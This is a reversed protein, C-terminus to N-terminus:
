ELAHGINAMLRQERAVAEVKAAREDIVVSPSRRLWINKLRCAGGENTEFVIGQLNVKDGGRPDTIRSLIRSDARLTEDTWDRREDQALLSDWRALAGCPQRNGAADLYKTLLSPSMVLANETNMFGEGACQGQFERAPDLM